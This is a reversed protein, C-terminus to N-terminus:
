QIYVNNCVHSPKLILSSKGTIPLHKNFGYYYNGDTHNHSYNHNNQTNENYNLINKEFSTGSYFTQFTETLLNLKHTKQHNYGYSLIKNLFLDKEKNDKDIKDLVNRKKLISSKIKRKKSSYNEM